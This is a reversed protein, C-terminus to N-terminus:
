SVQLTNGNTLKVTQSGELGGASARGQSCTFKEDNFAETVGGTINTITPTPIMRCEDTVIGAVTKCKFKFGPKGKGNEAALDHVAGESTFLETRWPVDLAEMSAESTCASGSVSSCGSMTWSTTEGASFSGALGSGTDECKVAINGYSATYDSLTITGKWSVAEGKAIQAGSDLWVPPEEQETSLTGGNTATISASGELTGAESGGGNCTLKENKNYAATVGGAANTALMSINGSCQDKYMVNLVKCELKFGPTGKGSSTLVERLAGEVTALEAHWPLNLAVLAPTGIKECLLGGACNSTTLTTVEGAGGLGASGEAKEECELSVGKGSLTKPDTLKVKGSWTTATAETLPTGNLRWGIRASALAPVAGWLMLLGAVLVITRRTRRAARSAQRVPIMGAPESAGYGQSGM